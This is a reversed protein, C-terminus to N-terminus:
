EAFNRFDKDMEDASIVRNPDKSERPCDPYWDDEEDQWSCACGDENDREVYDAHSNPIDWSSTLVMEGATGSHEAGWGQEEESWFHFTLEPHQEVMATMVPEPVSWATQYSYSLTGVGGVTLTTLDTDLCADSTDWKTGWNRINWDYWDSGTFTLAKALREEQSLSPDKVDEPKIKHGYYYPLEEDAPRVFNWFSIPNEGSLKKEVVREEEPISINKQTEEDWKWSPTLWQTEYQKSAKDAFALLDETKGSVSMSNYVWNPM